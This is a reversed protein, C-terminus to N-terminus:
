KVLRRGFTRLSFFVGAFLWLGLYLADLLLRPGLGTGLSLARLINVGHTVPLIQAVVRLWGPLRSIPYFVGAFLNMPLVGLRFLLAMGLDSEQTAAFAATVSATSMGSLVAAPVMFVAFPSHLVGFVAMVLVFLASVGTFRAVEWVLKGAVVDGVSLPTAIEAWYTREWKFGGLVPYSCDSVGVQLMSAALLGPAVFSLYPVGNVGGSHHNVLSGVGLGMAALYLVPELFTTTLSSRWTKRYVYWNRWVSRVWTPWGARVTARGVAPALM